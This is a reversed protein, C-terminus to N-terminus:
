IERMTNNNYRTFKGRKKFFFKAKNINVYYPIKSGRMYVMFVPIGPFERLKKLNQAISGHDVLRELEKATFLENNHERLLKLLEAQSM